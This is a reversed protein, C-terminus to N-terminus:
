HISHGKVKGLAVYSGRSTCPSIVNDRGFWMKGLRYGGKSTLSLTDAVRILILSLKQKSVVIKIPSLM